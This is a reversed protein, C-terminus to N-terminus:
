GEISVLNFINSASSLQEWTAPRPPISEQVHRDHIEASTLTLFGNVLDPFGTADAQDGIRLPTYSQTMIRLTKIGSQLVVMFGPRNYTVVGHVLIRKTLSKENYGNLIADMPTAPLSWPSAAAHKLIRIDALSSVNLEVGTMQMMGDFSGAAVGTVEVQADLLDELTSANGFNLDLQIVGGGTLLMSRIPISSSFLQDATRIQGRVTVLLCDREGRILQSFSSPLPRPLKGHHFITVSDGVVEPRYSDRTIGRVLVRDGPALKANLPAQVYVAVGADQVFLMQDPKSYYTVTGKFAVPLAQHAEANTLAHIARLSTLTGPPAAYAAMAWGFLIGFVPVSRKM